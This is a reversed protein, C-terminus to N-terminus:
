KKVRVNAPPKPLNSNNTGGYEHGGMDPYAGVPRKNRFFDDTVATITRGKDAAPSDVSIMFYQGTLQGAGTPGTKTLRPNGVIDGTGSGYRSTKSWNNHSFAIGSYSGEISIV